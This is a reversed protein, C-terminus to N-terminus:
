QNQKEEFRKRHVELYPQHKDDIRHLKMGENIGLIARDEPSIKNSIRIVGDRDFTILHKDFLADLNAVLLLGNFPDIRKEGTDCDSWPIIHSARLTERVSCGTVACKNGWDKDLKARFEEQGLRGETTIETTTEELPTEPIVFTPVESGAKHATTADSPEPHSTVAETKDGRNERIMELVKQGFRSFEEASPEIDTMRKIPFHQEAHNKPLNPFCERFPTQLHKQMEANGKIEVDNIYIKKTKWGVILSNSKGKKFRVGSGLMFAGIVVAPDGTEWSPTNKSKNWQYHYTHNKHYIIEANVDDDTIVHFSFAPTSPQDSMMSELMPSPLLHPAAHAQLSSRMEDPFIVVLAKDNTMNKHFVPM